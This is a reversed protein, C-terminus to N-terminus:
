PMGMIGPAPHIVVLAAGIQRAFDISAEMEQFAAARVHQNTSGLHIDLIPAHVTFGVGLEDKIQEVNEAYASHVEPSIYSAQYVAEFGALGAEVAQRAYEIDHLGPRFWSYYKM